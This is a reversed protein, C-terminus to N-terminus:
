ESEKINEWPFGDPTGTVQEKAIGRGGMSQLHPFTHDLGEIRRKNFRKGDIFFTNKHNIALSLHAMGIRLRFM